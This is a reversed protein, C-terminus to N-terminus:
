LAGSASADTFASSTHVIGDIRQLADMAPGIVDDLDDGGLQLLIDFAGSIASAGKFAPVSGLAQLVEDVRGREVVISVLGIVEPTSRKAGIHFGTQQDKYVAGEISFRGRAGRSWLEGSILEQLEGVSETRVHAFAVYDGVMDSAFIVPGEPPAGLERLRSVLERPTEAEAVDRVFLFAHVGTYNVDDQIEVM